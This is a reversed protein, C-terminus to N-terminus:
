TKFFGRVTITQQLVYGAVHDLANENRFMLHRKVTVVALEVQGFDTKESGKPISLMMM